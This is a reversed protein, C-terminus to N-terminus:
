FDFPRKHSALRAKGAGSTTLKIAFYVINRGPGPLYCNCHNMVGLTDSLYSLHLILNIGKCDESNQLRKNPLVLAAEKAACFTADM